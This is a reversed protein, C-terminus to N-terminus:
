LWLMNSLTSITMVNQRIYVKKKSKKQLKNDHKKKTCIVRRDKKCPVLYHNVGDYRVAPTALATPGRMRVRQAQRKVLTEAVTVRFDLHDIKNAPQIHNCFEHAAVVALNLAQSFLNWRWKRARLRPRYSALQRDCPDVGGMGQNYM